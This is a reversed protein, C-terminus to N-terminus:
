DESHGAPRSNPFPLHEQLYERPTQGFRARFVRHFQAYSGFGAELAAGLLNSAQTDVRGLFRALRLENRHEVISTGTYRKFTRALQGASMHVQQALSECTLTPDRGLLQTVERILPHQPKEPGSGPKILKSRIPELARGLFSCLVAARAQKAEDIATGSIASDTYLIGIPGQQGLIATCCIRGRGIVKTQQQDQAIFPCDEFATWAYGKQARAFTERDLDGFDYMLDHEDVSNGEADTGWTGVMVQSKADLLFIGARELHIINRTFEVAYRLIRDVSEASPECLLESMFDALESAQNSPAVM